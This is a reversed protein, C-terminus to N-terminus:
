CSLSSVTCYRFLNINCIVVSPFLIETDYNLETEVSKPHSLYRQCRDVAQYGFMGLTGIVLLRWMIRHFLRVFRFITNCSSSFFYIYINLSKMIKSEAHVIPTPFPVRFHLPPFGRTSDLFVVVKIKVYKIHLTSSTNFHSFVSIKHSTYFVQLSTPM